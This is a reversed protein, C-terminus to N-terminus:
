KDMTGVHVNTGPVDHETTSVHMDTGPVDHDTTSVHMDTGHDTTSVRIDTPDTNTSMHTPLSTPTNNNDPINTQIDTLMVTPMDNSIVHSLITFLGNTMELTLNIVLSFNSGADLVFVKSTDRIIMYRNELLLLQPYEMNLRLVPYHNQLIFDYVFVSNHQQDSYAFYTGNQSKSCIGSSISVNKITNPSSGRVLFQLTHEGENNNFLTVQYDDSPCIYPVGYTSFTKISTWDGYVPDFYIYRDTCYAVLLQQNGDGLKPVLKHIQSCKPLEPYRQTQTSDYVDMVFITNDVDFYVMYEVLVFNSLSSTSHSNSVRIETLPGLLTM